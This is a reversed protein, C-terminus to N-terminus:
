MYIIARQAETYSGDFKYIFGIKTRIEDYSLKPTVHHASPVERATSILQM